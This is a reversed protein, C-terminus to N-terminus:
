LIQLEAHLAGAQKLAQFISVLDRPTVGLANLARAVEAVTTSKPMVVLRARQEEALVQTRPVVATVGGGFANPQSVQPAEGISIFLNGHAVAASSLTVNEGAVVTGTRENIV